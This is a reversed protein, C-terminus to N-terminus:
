TLSMHRARETQFRVFLVRKKDNFPAHRVCSEVLDQLDTWLGASGDDASSIAAQDLAMMRIFVWKELLCAGHQRSDIKRIRYERIRLPSSGIVTSALEIRLKGLSATPTGIGASM